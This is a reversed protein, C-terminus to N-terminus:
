NREATRRRAIAIAERFEEQKAPSLYYPLAVLSDDLQVAGTERLASKLDDPHIAFVPKM